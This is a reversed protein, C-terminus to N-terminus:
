GMPPANLVRVTGDLVQVEAPDTSSNIRLSACGAGTRLHELRYTQFISNPAPDLTLAQGGDAPRLDLFTQLFLFPSAAAWAQPSCSKIYAVPSSNFRRDRPFGCFVEPLRSSPFRLGAEIVATIVATAERVFGNRRMGLAILANDHPWVSGNHYSMPNYNPSAMSLTRIGWGSFMDEALLREIVAGTHEADIIGSWLGHGVNSTVSRVQRKDRDLAQAFFGEDAMWFDHNFRLRLRLAEDRLRSALAPDGHREVLRSLGMKAHYVYGQVEVLAAPLGAITGDEYQLSDFSDKWGHNKVGGAGHVEYEVYGDGDLDGYEDVWRLARLAHPLIDHYLTESGLWAMTECFLVVFLPTADITGYYPLHPIERVNALEGRRLEHLIKGPEEETRADIKEGQYAALFRLTGEAISPNYILTELATIIADRGFPVAYWPIGAAPMITTVKGNKPSGDESEEYELLARIDYRSQRLLSRDFLENDTAISTSKAHWRDYSRVLRDLATDFGVAKVPRRRGTSPRVSLSISVPEHPPLHLRFVMVNASMPEPQASFRVLTHRAVKDRGTYSFELGDPGFKTRTSAALRQQAFGRIAFIDRFDADFHLTLDVELPIHNCNYFGLRERFSREDVFRSRRISLSQRPVATGDALTFAPNVYQFTAIYDREASHSLYLPALGNVRLEYTSLYRTDFYYLGLGEANGMPIDGLENTVVQIHNEKLVVPAPM